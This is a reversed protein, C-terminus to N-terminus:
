MWCEQRIIPYADLEKLWNCQCGSQMVIKLISGSPHGYQNKSGAWIYARIEKLKQPMRSLNNGSGHHPIQFDANLGKLCSFHNEINQMREGKLNADGNMWTVFSKKACPNNMADAPLSIMSLSSEKLNKYLRKYLRKLENEHVKYDDITKIRRILIKESGILKSEDKTKDMYFKFNWSNKQLVIDHSYTKGCTINSLDVSNHEGRNGETDIYVFRKKTETNYYWNIVDDSIKGWFLLTDTLTPKPLIIKPLKSNNNKLYKDLELIGNVHDNHLHSIVIFDVDKLGSKKIWDRLEQSPGENARNTVAGCDYVFTLVEGDISIRESFFGGQGIPFFSKTVCFM